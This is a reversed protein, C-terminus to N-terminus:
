APDVPIDPDLLPLLRSLCRTRRGLMRMSSRAQCKL